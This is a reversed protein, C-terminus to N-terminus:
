EAQPHSYSNMLGLFQMNYYGRYELMSLKQTQTVLKYQNTKNVRVATEALLDSVCDRTVSAQCGTVHLLGEGPSLRPALCVPADQVQSSVSLDTPSGCRATVPDGPLPEQRVAVKGIGCSNRDHSFGWRCGYAFPTGLHEEQSCKASGLLETLVAIRGMDVSVPVRQLGQVISHHSVRFDSFSYSSFYFM